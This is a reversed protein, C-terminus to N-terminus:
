RITDPLRVGPGAENRWVGPLEPEAMELDMEELGIGGYAPQGPESLEPMDLPGSRANSERRRREAEAAEREALVSRGPVELRAATPLKPAPPVEEAAKVSGWQDLYFTRLGKKLPFTHFGKGDSELRYYELVPNGTQAQSVAAAVERGKGRNRYEWALRLLKRAEAEIREVTENRAAVLGWGGLNRVMSVGVKFKRGTTRNTGNISLEAWDNDLNAGQNDAPTLIMERALSLPSYEAVFEKYPMALQSQPSFLRHAAPYDGRRLSATFDSWLANVAQIDELAVAPGALALVIIVLPLLFVRRRM